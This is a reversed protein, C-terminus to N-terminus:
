SYALKIQIFAPTLKDIIKFPLRGLREWIWLNSQGKEWAEVKILEETLWEKSDAV